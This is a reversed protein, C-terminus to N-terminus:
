PRGNASAGKVGGLRMLIFLGTLTYFAQRMRKLVMLTLGVAPDIGLLQCLFVGGADQVGLAGPIVLAALTLPQIISELILADVPRFSSTLLFLILAVEGVGVLWGTLHYFTSLLFVRPNTDYFSLLHADTSEAKTEWRELRPLFKKLRQIGLFFLGRTQLRILLLVFAYALGVLPFLVVWAYGSVGLRYLFFPVGMLIFVIQGATLATRAIVLSAVGKDTSVGLTKLIYIKFPEGGIAGAPTLNNVAEGALRVMYLRWLSFDEGLAKLACNWGKCDFFAAMGYPLLIWLFSWGLRRIYDLVEWIGIQRLLVGLLVLGTLTFFLQVRGKPRLFLGKPVPPPSQDADFNQEKLPHMKFQEKTLLSTEKRSPSPRTM